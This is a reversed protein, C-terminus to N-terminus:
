RADERVLNGPVGNFPLSERGEYVVRIASEAVALKVEGTFEAVAVRM